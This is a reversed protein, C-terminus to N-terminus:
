SRGYRLSAILGVSAAVAGITCSGLWGFHAYAFGSLLSCIGGGLFMSITYVANLRARMDAALRYLMTRNSIDVVVSAIDLMILALAMVAINLRFLMFIAWAAVTIAMAASRAGGLGFRAAASAFVPATVASAAAVLGVLGIAGISWGFHEGLYLTAGIWFANFSGFTTAQSFAAIQLTRETRALRLMSLLLSGYSKKERPTTPRVIFASLAVLGMTLAAATWYVARWGFSGAILGSVTRALLIGVIVGRTLVATVHALRDKGVRTSAYPPLLYPTIGFMGIAFCSAFLIHANATTAVALLALAQLPLVVSLMRRPQITDALPLLAIIGTALGLQTLAPLMGWLNVPLMLNRGVEGILPQMYYGNAIAVCITLSLLHMEADAMEVKLSTRVNEPLAM